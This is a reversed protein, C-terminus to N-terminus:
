ELNKHCGAYGDSELDCTCLCVSVCVRACVRVQVCVCVRARVCACRSYRTSVSTTQTVADPLLVQHISKLSPESLTLIMHRCQHLQYCCEDESASDDGKRSVPLVLRLQLRLQLILTITATVTVASTITLIFTIVITFTIVATVTM